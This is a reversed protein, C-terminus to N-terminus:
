KSVLCREYAEYEGVNDLQELRSFVFFKQQPNADLTVCRGRKKEAALSQIFYDAVSTLLFDRHGWCLSEPLIQLLQRHEAEEELQRGMM